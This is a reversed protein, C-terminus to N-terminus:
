LEQHNATHREFCTSREIFKTITFEIVFRCRTPIEISYESVTPKRVNEEQRYYNLRPMECPIEHRSRVESLTASPCTDTCTNRIQGALNLYLLVRYGDSMWPISM